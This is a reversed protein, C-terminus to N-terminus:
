IIRFYRGFDTDNKYRVPSEFLQHYIRRSYFVVEPKQIVTRGKSSDFWRPNRSKIIWHTSHDDLFGLIHTRIESSVLFKENSETFLIFSTKWIESSQESVTRLANANISSTAHWFLAEIIFKAFKAPKRQRSWNKRYYYQVLLAHPKSEMLPSVEQDSIYFRM